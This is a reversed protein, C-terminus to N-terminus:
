TQVSYLNPHNKDELLLRAVDGDGLAARIQRVVQGWPIGFTECQARALDLAGRAHELNTCGNAQATTIVALLNGTLAAAIQETFYVSPM